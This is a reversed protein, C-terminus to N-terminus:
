ITYPKHLFCVREMTGPFADRSVIRKRTKQGPAAPHQQYKKYKYPEPVNKRRQRNNMTQFARSSRKTKKTTCLLLFKSDLLAAYVSDQVIIIVYYNNM